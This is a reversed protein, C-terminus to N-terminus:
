NSAIGDDSGSSESVEGGRDGVDDSIRITRGNGVPTDNLNRRMKMRPSNEVRPGSDDEASDASNEASLDEASIDNSIVSQCPNVRIRPLQDDSITSGDSSRSSDSSSVLRGHSKSPKHKREKPLEQISKQDRPRICCVCEPADGTFHVVGNLTVVVYKSDKDLLRLEWVGSGLQATESDPQRAALSDMFAAKLLRVSDNCMRDWFSTGELREAPIDLFHSVSQSVFGLKGSSDFVVILDPISRLIQEKRRLEDNEEKLEEIFQKKRKRSLQASKRNAARKLQKRDDSPYNGHLDTDSHVKSGPMPAITQHSKEKNKKSASNVTSPVARVNNQTLPPPPPKMSAAGPSGVPGAASPVEASNNPTITMGAPIVQQQQPNPTM